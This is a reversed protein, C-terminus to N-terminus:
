AIRCQMPTAVNAEKPGKLFEEKAVWIVEGLTNSTPSNNKAKCKTNVHGLGLVFPIVSCRYWRNTHYVM